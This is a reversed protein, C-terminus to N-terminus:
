FSLAKQYPSLIHRVENSLGTKYNVPTDPKEKGVVYPIIDRNLDLDKQTYAVPYIDFAVKSIALGIPAPVTEM